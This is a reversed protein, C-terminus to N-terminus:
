EYMELESVAKSLKAKAMRVLVTRYAIAEAHPKKDAGRPSWGQVDGYARRCASAMLNLQAVFDEAAVALVPDVV